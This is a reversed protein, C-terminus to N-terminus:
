AGLFGLRRFYVAALIAVPTFFAGWFVNVVNGIQASSALATPGRSFTQAPFLLPFFGIFLQSGPNRPGATERGAM